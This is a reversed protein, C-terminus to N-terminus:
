LSSYAPSFKTMVPWEGVQELQAKVCITPMSELASIARRAQLKRLPCTKRPAYRCCGSSPAAHTTQFCIRVCRQAFENEQECTRANQSNHNARRTQTRKRARWAARKAASSKGSSRAPQATLQRLRPAPHIGGSSQEMACRLGAHHKEPSSRRKRREVPLRGTAPSSLRECSHKVQKLHM